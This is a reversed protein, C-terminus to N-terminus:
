ESRQQEEIRRLLTKIEEMDQEWRSEMRALRAELQDQVQDAAERGLADGRIVMGAGSILVGALFLAIGAWYKGGNGSTAAM